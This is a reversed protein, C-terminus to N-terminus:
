KTLIDVSIIDNLDLRKNVLYLDGNIKDISKIIGKIFIIQNNYNYKIKVTIGPKLYADINKNESKILRTKLVNFPLFQYARNFM